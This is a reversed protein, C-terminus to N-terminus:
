RGQAHDRAGDLYSYAKEREIYDLSSLRQPRNMASVFQDGNLTYAYPTASVSPGALLTLLILSNRQGDGLM